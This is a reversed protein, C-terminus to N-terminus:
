KIDVQTRGQAELFARGACGGPVATRGVARPELPTGGRGSQSRVASRGPWPVVSLRGRGSHRTPRLAPAASGLRSSGAEAIVQGSAGFRALQEGFRALQEGRGAHQLLLGCRHRARAPVAIPVLGASGGAPWRVLRVVWGRCCTRPGGAAGGVADVAGSAGIPRSRRGRCWFGGGSRPPRTSRGRAKGRGRDPVEAAGAGRDTRAMGLAGGGSVPGVLRSGSWRGGSAKRTL